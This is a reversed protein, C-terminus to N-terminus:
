YLFGQGFRQNLAYLIKVLAIFKKKSKIYFIAMSIIALKGVSNM